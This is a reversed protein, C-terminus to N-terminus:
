RQDAPPRNPIVAPLTTIVPPTNRIVLEHPHIDIEPRDAIHHLWDYDDPTLRNLDIPYTERSPRATGCDYVPRHHRPYRYNNM